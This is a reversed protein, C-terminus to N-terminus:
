IYLTPNKWLLTLSIEFVYLVSLKLFVIELKNEIAIKMAVNPVKNVMMRAGASLLNDKPFLSYRRSKIINDSAISKKM